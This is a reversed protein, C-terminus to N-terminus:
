KANVCYLPGNALKCIQNDIQKGYIRIQSQHLLNSRDSLTCFTFLYVNSFDVWCVYFSSRNPQVMELWKRYILILRGHFYSFPLPAQVTHSPPKEGSSFKRIKRWFFPQQRGLTNWHYKNIISNNWWLHWFTM